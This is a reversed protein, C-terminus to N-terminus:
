AANGHRLARMRGAMAERQEPSLKRRTRISVLDKPIDFQMWRDRPSKHIGTKRLVAEPNAQLQKQLRADWTFVSATKEALNFTIVTEREQLSLQYADAKPM